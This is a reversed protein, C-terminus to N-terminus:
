FRGGLKWPAQAHPREPNTGACGNRRRPDPAGQTIDRLRQTGALPADGLDGLPGRLVPTASEVIGFRRPLKRGIGLGGRHHPIHERAATHPGRPPLYRQRHRLEGARRGIQRGGPEPMGTHEDLYVAIAHEGIGDPAVSARGRTHHPRMPLVRHRHFKRRQGRQVRHHDTMVVVVMEVHIRDDGQRAALVGHEHHWQPHSRM